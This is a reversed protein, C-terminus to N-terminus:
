IGNLGLSSGEYVGDNRFKGSTNMVSFAAELVTYGDERVENIPFGQGEDEVQCWGDDEINIKIINGHGINHEDLANSFIELLLHNPNSTDGAYVGPRLRVHERPDLSEISDKNYENLGGM